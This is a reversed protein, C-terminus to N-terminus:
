RRAAALDLEPYQRFIGDNNFAIRRGSAIYRRIRPRDFVEAHLRILRPCSRLARATSAPFAFKLGAIVQAMSLDAYTIRAGVL